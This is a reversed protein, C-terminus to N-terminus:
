AQTVTGGLSRPTLFDVVHDAVQSTRGALFHDGGAVVAVETNVWDAVYARASDPPRFQDHEPVVLRKPRPDDAALLEDARLIRLPPAVVCWGAVAPDTISLSVDAGFSWGALVLPVGPASAALAAIAALVDQQEGRGEGYTGGSGEVGRFNFRIVAVGRDPLSRFLESTVLSRMSGGHQPHPHALVAAGIPTAPVRTEAELDVGDATRLPHSETRLEIDDTM